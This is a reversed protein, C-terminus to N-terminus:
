LYEEEFETRLKDMDKIGLLSGTTHEVHILEDVLRIKEELSLGNVENELINQYLPVVNEIIHKVPPKEAYISDNNEKTDEIVDEWNSLDSNLRDKYGEFHEEVWKRSVSKVNKFFDDFNFWGFNKNASCWWFLKICKKVEKVDWLHIQIASYDVPHLEEPPYSKYKSKFDSVKSKGLSTSMGKSALSHRFPENPWGRTM